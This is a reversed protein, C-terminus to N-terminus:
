NSALVVFDDLITYDAKLSYKKRELDNWLLLVLDNNICANWALMMQEKDTYVGGNCNEKDSNYEIWFKYKVNQSPKLKKLKNTWRKWLLVGDSIRVPGYHLLLKKKNEIKYIKVKIPSIQGALAM